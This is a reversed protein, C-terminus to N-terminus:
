SRVNKAKLALMAPSPPIDLVEATVFVANLSRALLLGM